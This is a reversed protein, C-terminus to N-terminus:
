KALRRRRIVLGIMGAVVLGLATSRDAASAAAVACGLQADSKNGPASSSSNPDTGARLEAVDTTGDGDSDVEDTAVRDLATLLDREGTLGRARMAWAFPTVLTDSGTKGYEHCTGCHPEPANGLHRAIQRPFEEKAAVPGALAVVGAIGVFLTLRSHNM